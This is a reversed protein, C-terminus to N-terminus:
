ELGRLVPDGNGITFTVPTNVDGVATGNELTESVEISVKAFDKPKKWGEGEEVTQHIVGEDKAKSVDEGVRFSHLEIDFKLTANAPIKPPSGTEGYAKHSQIEFMAREGTQMTAVGESWGTIVGQGITFEFLEGRDRSSDFQTGDLLTGTYHCKVKAGTTPTEGTGAKLVTKLISGDGCLDVPTDSTEVEMPAVGDTNSEDMTAGELEKSM